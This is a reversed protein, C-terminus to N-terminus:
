HIESNKYQLTMRGPRRFLEKLEKRWGLLHLLSSSTQGPPGAWHPWCTSWQTRVRRATWPRRRGRSPRRPPLESPTPHRSCPSQRCCLGALSCCRRSRCCRGWRVCGDTPGAAWKRWMGTASPPPARLIDPSFLNGTCWRVGRSVDTRWDQFSAHLARTSRGPLFFLLFSM